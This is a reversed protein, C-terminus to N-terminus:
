PDVMRPLPGFSVSRLQYNTFQLFAAEGALDYVWCLDGPSHGLMGYPAPRNTDPLPGLGGTTMYSTNLTWVRNTDLHGWFDPQGLRQHVQGASTGLRLARISAKEPAPLSRTSDGPPPQKSCGSGGMLILFSMTIVFIPRV